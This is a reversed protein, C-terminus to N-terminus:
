RHTRDTVSADLILQCPQTDRFLFVHLRLRNLKQDPPDVILKLFSSLNIQGIVRSLAFDANHLTLTQWQLRLTAILSQMHNRTYIYM